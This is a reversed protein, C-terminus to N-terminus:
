LRPEKPTFFYQKDREIMLVSGAAVLRGLACLFAGDSCGASLVNQHVVYRLRFLPYHDGDCQNFFDRLAVLAEAEGRVPPLAPTAARLRSAIVRGPENKHM